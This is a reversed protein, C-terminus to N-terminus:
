DYVKRHMGNPVSLPRHHEQMRGADVDGFALLDFRREVFTFLAQTPDARDDLSPVVRNDTLAQVADDRAPVPAGLAEEVVRRLLCSALRDCDDNWRVPKVFLAHNQGADPSAFPDIMELRHPSALVAGM